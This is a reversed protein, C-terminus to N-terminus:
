FLDFGMWSLLKLFYISIPLSLPGKIFQLFPRSQKAVANFFPVCCGRRESSRKKIREMKQWLFSASYRLSTPSSSSSPSLYIQFPYHPSLHLNHSLQHSFKRLPDISLSHSLPNLLVKVLINWKKKWVFTLNLNIKLSEKKRRERRKVNKTFQLFTSVLKPFFWTKHVFEITCIHRIKLPPFPFM